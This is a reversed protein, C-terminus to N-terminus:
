SPAIQGVELLDMVEQLALTLTKTESREYCPGCRDSLLKKLCAIGRPALPERSLLRSRIQLILPMADRVQERCPKVAILSTPRPNQAREALKDLSRAVARRTREGTLQAARAAHAESLSAGMGRALEEDLSRALMRAILRDELTPEGRWRKRATVALRPIPEVEVIGDDAFARVSGTCSPDDRTCTEYLRGSRYAGQGPPAGGHPVRLRALTFWSSARCSADANRFSGHDLALSSSRPRNISRPPIFAPKFGGSSM